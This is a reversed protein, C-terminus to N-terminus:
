ERCAERCQADLPKVRIGTYGMTKEYGAPLFREFFLYGKDTYLWSVASFEEKFGAEPQNENWNVVCKTVKVDDGDCSFEYCSFSATSMVVILRMKGSQGDSVKQCFAEVAEPHTMNFQNKEDVASYGESGLRELIAEMTEPDTLKGSDSASAYIDQICKGTEQGVELIDKKDERVKETCGTVSFMLILIVLILRKKM